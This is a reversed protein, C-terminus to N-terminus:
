LRFNELMYIHVKKYHVILERIIYADEMQTSRNEIEFEGFESIEDEGMPWYPHCKVQLFFVLNCHLLEFQQQALHQNM